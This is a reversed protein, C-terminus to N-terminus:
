LINGNVDVLKLQSFVRLQEFEPATVDPQESPLGSLLACGLQQCVRWLVKHANGAIAGVPQGVFLAPHALSLDDVIMLDPPVDMRKLLTENFFKGFTSPNKAVDTWEKESLSCYMASQKDAESAFGFRLVCMNARQASDSAADLLSAVSSRDGALTLSKHRSLVTDDGFRFGVPVPTERRKQELELMQEEEMRAHEAMKERLWPLVANELGVFLQQEKFPKAAAHMASQVIIDCSLEHFKRKEADEESPVDLMKQLEAYAVVYARRLSLLVNFIRLGEPDQLFTSVDQTAELQAKDAETVEM